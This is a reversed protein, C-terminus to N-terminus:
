LGGEAVANGLGARGRGTRYHRLGEAAASTLGELRKVQAALEDAGTTTLQYYRRHRGDVVETGSETVLGERALRDL